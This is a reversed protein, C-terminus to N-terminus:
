LLIFSCSIKCIGLSISLDLLKDRNLEKGKITSISANLFFIIIRLFVSVNKCCRFSFNMSSILTLSDRMNKRFFKISFRVISFCLILPCSSFYLNCTISQLARCWLSHKSITLFYTFYYENM